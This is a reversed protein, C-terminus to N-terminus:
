EINKILKLLKERRQRSRTTINFNSEFEEILHLEDYYEKIKTQKM